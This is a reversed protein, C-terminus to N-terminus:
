KGSNGGGGGGGHGSSTASGHALAATTMVTGSDANNPTGPTTVTGPATSATSKGPVRHVAAPKSGSHPSPMTSKQVM